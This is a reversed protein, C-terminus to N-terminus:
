FHREKKREQNAKMKRIIECANQLRHILIFWMNTWYTCLCLRGKIEYDVDLDKRLERKSKPSSVDLDFTDAFNPHSKLRRIEKKGDPSETGSRRIQLILPVLLTEV